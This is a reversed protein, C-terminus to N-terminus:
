ELTWDDMDFNIIDWVLSDYNTGPIIRHKRDGVYKLNDMPVEKDSIRVFGKIVGDPYVYIDKILTDDAQVSHGCRIHAAAQEYAIQTLWNGTHEYYRVIRGKSDYDYEVLINYGSLDSFVGHQCIGNSNYYFYTAYREDNDNGDICMEIATVESIDFLFRVIELPNPRNLARAYRRGKDDEEYKVPIGLVFSQKLGNVVMDGTFFSIKGNIYLYGEKSIQANVISDAIGSDGVVSM